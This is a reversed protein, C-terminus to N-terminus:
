GEKADLAARAVWADEYEDDDGLGLLARRAVGLGHVDVYGACRRYTDSYHGEDAFWELAARLRAVESRLSARESESRDLAYRLERAWWRIRSGLSPLQRAGAFDGHFPVRLGTGDDDLHRVTAEFEETIAGLAVEVTWGNPM